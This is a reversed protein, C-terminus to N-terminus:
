SKTPTSLDIVLESLYVNMLYTYITTLVSFMKRDFMANGVNM